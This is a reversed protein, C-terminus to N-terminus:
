DEYEETWRSGFAVTKGHILRAEVKILWGEYVSNQLWGKMTEVDVPTHDDLMCGFVLSGGTIEYLDNWADIWRTEIEGNTAM